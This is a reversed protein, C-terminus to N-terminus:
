RKKWRKKWRKFLLSVRFVLIWCRALLRAIRMAWELRGTVPLLKV